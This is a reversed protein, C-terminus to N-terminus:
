GLNGGERKAKIKLRRERYWIILGSIIIVLAGLITFEDPVEDYFIFGLITM